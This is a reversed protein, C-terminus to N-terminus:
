RTAPTTAGRVHRFYVDEGALVAKWGLDMNFRALEPDDDPILVLTAGDPIQEVLAPDDLVAQLFEGARVLNRGTANM